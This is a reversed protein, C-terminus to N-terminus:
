IDFSLKVGPYFKVKAQWTEAILLLFRRLICIPDGPFPPFPAFTGFVNRCPEHADDTCRFTAADDRCQWLFSRTMEPQEETEPLEAEPKVWAHMKCPQLFSSARLAETYLEPSNIIHKNKSPKMSKRDFRSENLISSVTFWVYQLPLQRGFLKKRRKIPLIDPALEIMIRLNIVSYKGYM